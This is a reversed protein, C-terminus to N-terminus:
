NKRYIEKRHGLKHLTITEKEAQFVIRYDGVRFRFVNKEGKIKKAFLLPNEQESFFKLKERVQAQLKKEAKQFDELFDDSLFFQFM